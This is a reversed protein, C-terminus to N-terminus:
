SFLWKALEWFNGGDIRGVYKEPLREQMMTAEHRALKDVENNYKAHTSTNTTHAKVRTFDVLWCQWSLIHLQERLDRNQVPKKNALRRGRAIRQPLYKELGDRVYMSDM